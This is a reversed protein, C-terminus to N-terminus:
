RWRASPVSLFGSLAQHSAPFRQEALLSLSWFYIFMWSPEGGARWDEAPSGNASCECSALPRCLGSEPERCTLVPFLVSHDRCALPHSPPLPSCLSFFHVGSYPSRRSSLAKGSPESVCSPNRRTDPLPHTIHPALFM